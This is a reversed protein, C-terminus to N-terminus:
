SLGSTSTTCHQPLDSLEPEEEAREEGRERIELKCSSSSSSSSSISSSSSSSWRSPGRSKSPYLISVRAKARSTALSSLSPKYSPTQGQKYLGTPHVAARPDFRSSVITSIRRLPRNSATVRLQDWKSTPRPQGAGSTLRRAKAENGHRRTDELVKENIKASNRSSKPKTEWSRSRRPKNQKIGSFKYNV